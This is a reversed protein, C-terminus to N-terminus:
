VWGHVLAWLLTASVIAIAGGLGMLFFSIRAERRLREHIASEYLSTGYMWLPAKRM